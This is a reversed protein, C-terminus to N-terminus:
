DGTSLVAVHPRRYVELERVAGVTALIGVQLRLESWM